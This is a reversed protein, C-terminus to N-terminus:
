LVGLKRPWWPSGDFATSPRIQPRYRRLDNMEKTEVGYKQHVYFWNVRQKNSMWVWHVMSM